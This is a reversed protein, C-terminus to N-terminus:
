RGLVPDRVIEAVDLIYMQRAGTHASDVCVKTGDDREKEQYPNNWTGDLSIVIRKKNM